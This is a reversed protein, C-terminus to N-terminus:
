DVWKGAMRHMILDNYMKGSLIYQRQEELNMNIRMESRNIAFSAICIDFKYRGDFSNAKAGFCIATRFIIADAYNKM